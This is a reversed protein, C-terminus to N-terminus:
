NYLNIIGALKQFRNVTDNSEMIPQPKKTVGTPKSAFGLNEKIASKNPKSLSVNLSEYVLKAEKVNNAKDLANIIKVKQSETLSKDKFLKNVYLLKANLLNVENLESQLESIQDDMEKNEKAMAAGAASGANEMAQSLDKWRKKVEDYTMDLVKAVAQIAPNKGSVESGSMKAPAIEEMEEYESEGLIEALLEDLNVEGDSSSKEESGMDMDMDMDMDMNDADPESMEDGKIDSVIDKILDVLEDKTMDGIEEDEKEKKKAEELTEDSDAFLEDLDIVEELEDEELAYGKARDRDGIMDGTDKPAFGYPGEELEDLEALIEELNFDEELEEGEKRVKKAPKYGTLKGAKKATLAKDNVESNDTVYDDKVGKSPDKITKFNKYEELDGEELDEMEQLRNALMNQIKPTFAEELALKANALATERIAKADAIAEKLLDKKNEM